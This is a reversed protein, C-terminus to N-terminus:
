VDDNLLLEFADASFCGVPIVLVALAFLQQHYLKMRQKTM